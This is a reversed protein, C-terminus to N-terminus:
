RLSDGSVRRISDQARLEAGRISDAREDPGATPSRQRSRLYAIVAWRQEVPLEAAYSPMRGLGKTIVEYFFGAPLSSVASSRLSPPRRETLNGLQLLESTVAVPLQTLYAGSPGRGTALAPDLVADRAITGEPPVRMAVSYADYRPQQNMRQLARDVRGQTLGCGLAFGGALLAVPVRLLTRSM